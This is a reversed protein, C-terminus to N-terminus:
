FALTAELQDFAADATQARVRSPLFVLAVAVGVAPAVAAV